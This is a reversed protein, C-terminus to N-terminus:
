DSSIVPGDKSDPQTSPWSFSITCCCKLEDIHNALHDPGPFVLKFVQMGKFHGGFYWPLQIMEDSILKIIISLKAYALDSVTLWHKM